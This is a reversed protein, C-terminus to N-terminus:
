RLPQAVLLSFHIIGAQVLASLIGPMAAAVSTGIVSAYSRWRFPWEPLDDVERQLRQYFSIQRLVEPTCDPDAPTLKELINDLRELEKKKYDRMRDHLPFQIIVFSGALFLFTPVALFVILLWPHPFDYASVGFVFWVAAGIAYVKSLTPGTSTVGLSHPAVVINQHGIEWVLKGLLFMSGLVAGCSFGAIAIEAVAVLTSSTTWDTFAGLAWFVVLCVASFVAGCWSVVRSTSGRVFHLRFWDGPDETSKKLKM